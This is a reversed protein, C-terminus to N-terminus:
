QTVIMMNMVPVTPMVRDYTACVKPRLSSSRGRCLADEPYGGGHDKPDDKKDNLWRDNCNRLETAARPLPSFKAREQVRSWM